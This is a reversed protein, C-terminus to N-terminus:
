KRVAQREREIWYIFSVDLGRYSSKKSISTQLRRVRNAKQIFNSNKVEYVICFITM